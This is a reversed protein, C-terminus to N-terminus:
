GAELFKLAETREFLYLLQRIARGRDGRLQPDQDLILRADDHVASLLDAHADLNALKFQPLGSQRTGLVEGSGRLRLDEEAIEFGDQSKRMIELRARAIEGLPGRYFLICNSPKEGRGVRGRLQHLQALGFREAHEIIITTAEPVDVGVEIVTTAVLISIDGDSFRQMVKDKQEAKMQGHILGIADGYTDQLDAYRAEAAALDSLESESVLPCVWYGRENRAILRALGQKLDQYRDFGILRTDIPQRGAPKDMIRSVDMDGYAALTLTRPIPTATMVLINTGGESANGKRGLQLRQKVGFRHQEDVIALALDSFEVDDQFLAHTGFVVPVAGSAIQELAKARAKGKNRATLLLWPVGLADCYPGLTAAHQRALIETPAMLAVQKQAEVTQLMAMMAVFTKGSGVDGQVLRLMRKDDELDASIDSIAAQQGATLDFPLDQLFARRLHGEGCVSQGAIIQKNRRILNLTIQNALLEDYALRKRAPAGLMVDESTTPNHASIIAEQWSPWGQKELWALDQWEALEPARPLIQSIAKRLTQLSIGATLPYVPELQPIQAAAAPQVVHDPHAMQWTDRYQEVRGSVIRTSGEPALKQLWDGRAQFFVLDMFGTQDAVTIRYPLGRRRAPHHKVIEVQCTAIRGAELAALSPRYSRDIIQYPMHWLLDIMRRGIFSEFQLSLRPGIGRLTEVDAFLHDLSSPRM